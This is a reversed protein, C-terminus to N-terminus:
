ADELTNFYFDLKQLFEAAEFKKNDDLGNTVEKFITTDIGMLQDKLDAYTEFKLNHVALAMTVVAIASLSYGKAVYKRTRILSCIPYESKGTYVLRRGANDVLFFDGLVFDRKDTVYAGMVCTFDFKSIVEEPTGFYKKIIQIARKPDDCHVYTDANPTVCVLNYDTLYHKVFDDMVEPSAFYFDLDNIPNGTFISTIAGGAIYVGEKRIVLSGFYQKLVKDMM